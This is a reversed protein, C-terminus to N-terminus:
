VFVMQSAFIFQFPTTWGALSLIKLTQCVRYEAKEIKVCGPQLQVGGGEGGGEGESM